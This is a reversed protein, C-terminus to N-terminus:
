VWSKKMELFIELYIINSKPQESSAKSKTAARLQNHAHVDPDEFDVEDSTPLKKLKRQQKVQDKLTSPDTSM